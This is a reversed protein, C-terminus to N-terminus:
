EIRMVVMSIDDKFNESGTFLQLQHLLHDIIEHPHASSQERILSCLRQEGFFHGSKNRAETIGDTYLVLVDGPELQGTKEEYEVEPKIGLILGEADLTQFEQRRSKWILPLNHGANSYAVERSQPYYKLYFMTIFMESKVLNTYFFRNLDKSLRSPQKRSLSQAQIFTRVEAMILAAAINHGSVDAIVLDLSDDDNVLFDYYDGGVHDATVCVGALSAGPIDPPSTPLLGLQINKAIELERRYQRAAILRETQRANRWAIGLQAAISEFVEIFEETFIGKDTRSFASLVGVPRGEV